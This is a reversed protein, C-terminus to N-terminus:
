LLALQRIEHHGKASGDYDEFPVVGYGRRIVWRQFGALTRRELRQSCNGLPLTRQRDGYIMPYPRIEREVMRNFRYLLREWTERKDYGILMYVRLRFAPVGHKELLDVGRFFREEDGLNDWATYIIRENFSDNYHKISALAKAAADDLMRLNVGQNLCVRYDGDIMEQIRAEWQDRPQGFFDNDLLHLHRPHPPGRWIDSITNVSRAAGEKKPVVCFGCKLRCGRQTFGISADFDPYISYDYRDHSEPIDIIEEVTVSNAPNWTGGVIAHPFERKFTEVRPASFSFIASGYVRDYAPELFNRYPSRSFCVEDGQNRHHHALKMLALNPLKGDLQTIRVIM